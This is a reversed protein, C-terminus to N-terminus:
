EPQAHLLVEGRAGNTMDGVYRRFVEGSLETEDVLGSERLRRIYYRMFVPRYTCAYRFTPLLEPGAGFGVVTGRKMGAGPRRGLRGGVFVSGALMRAGAFEGTDGLVVVLGRRMRAGAERGANGRVVIEGGCMGRTEGSYAAGVCHGADGEVVIRGGGMHAGLWDGADGRVLIEGGTMFAGTHPGVPGDLTISGWSMGLGIKKVATLDGLVTIDGAGAGDIEFLDGLTVQRRGYFAPLRAIDAAGLAAFRDPCVSDAEVPIPSSEKRTLTVGGRDLAAAACAICMM